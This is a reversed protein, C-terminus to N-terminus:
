FAWGPEPWRADQTHSESKKKWWSKIEGKGNQRESLGTLHPIANERKYSKM